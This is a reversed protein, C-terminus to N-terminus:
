NLAGPCEIEVIVKLYLSEFDNLAVLQGMFEWTGKACFNNRIWSEFLPLPSWM